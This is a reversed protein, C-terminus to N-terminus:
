GDGAGEWETLETYWVFEVQGARSYTKYKLVLRKGEQPYELRAAAVRDEIWRDGNFEGGVLV